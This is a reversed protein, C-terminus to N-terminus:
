DDFDLSHASIANIFTAFQAWSKENTGFIITEKKNTM